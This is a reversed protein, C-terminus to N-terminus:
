LELGMGVGAQEPKTMRLRDSITRQVVTHLVGSALAVNMDGAIGAAEM